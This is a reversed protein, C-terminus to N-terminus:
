AHGEAHADEKIQLRINREDVKRLNEHFRIDRWKEFFSMKKACFIPKELDPYRKGLMEFDEKKKCKLFKLWHWIDSDEVETLKPLEITVLNLKNTFCNNNESKLKYRNLYYSEEELMNHDCIVVSIVQHLKNNDDGWSLQDGILRCIYYLVRDKMNKAKDVQLEIHIIKGSKTSLKLDVIGMKHRRFLRRLFPSEVKLREYDDQPVDLFTKLFGITNDINRQNGFLEAFVFDNLPSLM